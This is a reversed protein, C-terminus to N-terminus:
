TEQKNGIRVFIAMFLLFLLVFMIYTEWLFSMVPVHFFYQILSAPIVILAFTLLIIRRWGIQFQPM